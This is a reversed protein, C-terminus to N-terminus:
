NDNTDSDNPQTNDTLNHLALHLMLYILRDLRQNFEKSGRGKYKKILFSDYSFVIRGKDAVILNFNGWRAPKKHLVVKLATFQNQLSDMGWKLTEKNYNQFSVMDFGIPSILTGWVNTEGCLFSPNEANTSTTDYVVSWYKTREGLYLIICKNNSIIRLISDNKIVRALQDLGNENPHDTDILSPQKSNIFSVFLLTSTLIILLRKM